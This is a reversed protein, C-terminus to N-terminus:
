HIAAWPSHTVLQGSWFGYTVVLVLLVVLGIRYKLSTLVRTSRNGDKLLFIFGSTLSILALLLLITIVIKIM